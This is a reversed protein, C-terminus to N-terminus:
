CRAMRSRSCWTNGRRELGLVQQGPLQLQLVRASPLAIHRKWRVTVREITQGLVSPGREDSGSRLARVITEVEPLEPM